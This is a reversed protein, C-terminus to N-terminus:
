YGRKCYRFCLMCGAAPLSFFFFDGKGGLRFRVFVFYCFFAYNIGAACFLALCCAYVASKELCLFFVGTTYFIGGLFLFLMARPPLVDLVNKFAGVILWGMILYLAVSWFRGDINTLVLKLVTGILALGWVAALMTWGVPNRMLVLLIPTYTGAILFYIAIHDIKKLVKKTESPVAAHYVTSATYMMMMSFGFVCSSIISWMNGYISSLTVLLTLCTISFLIGIGHTISNFVEEKRTYVHVTATSM